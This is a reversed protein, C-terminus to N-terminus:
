KVTDCSGGNIGCFSIGPEPEITGSVKVKLGAIDNWSKVNKPGVMGNPDVLFVFKSTDNVVPYTLNLRNESVKVQLSETEPWLSMFGVRHSGDERLWQVVVPNFKGPNISPGGVVNESFSQAGITLKPSVFTSYNRPVHDFAPSYASRHVLRSDGFSTLANLTKETVFTKHYDAMIAILPGIEFDDIHGVATPKPYLPSQELGVFSWIWLSMIALYRNLDYGYSRDWPGAINKMNANYVDGVFDWTERIMRPANFGLVSDAPLYKAGLTLAFLSVGFYTPSNFEALTDNQNFLDVIEQSWTEGEATINADGVKRGVWGSVAAKMLAANSYAPTLNDDDVGYVRYTDGIADLHLSKMIRQKLDEPLLHGFEEYCVIMATGIFGRWNPDWTNYIVAPYVETGPYPQEPYTQYDGYWQESANLFQGGIINNLIKIAQECDDNENRALLGAAYWSSSRTEHQLAYYINYLYGAQPDYINDMFTMSQTLLDAAYEIM